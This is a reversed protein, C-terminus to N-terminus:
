KWNAANKLAIEILKSMPGSISKNKHYLGDNIINQGRKNDSKELNHISM